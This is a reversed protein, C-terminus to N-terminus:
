ITFYVMLFLLFTVVSCSKGALCSFCLYVLGFHSLFSTERSPFDHSRSFYTRTAVRGDSQTEFRELIHFFSIKARGRSPMFLPPNNKAIWNLIPLCFLRFCFPHIKLRGHIQIRRHRGM